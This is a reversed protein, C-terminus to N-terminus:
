RSMWPQGGARAPVMVPVMTERVPAEGEDGGAGHGDGLVVAFLHQGEGGDGLRPSITAQAPMPAWSVMQAPTRSMIKWATLLDMSNWATPETSVAQAGPINLIHVAQQQAHGLKGIDDTDADRAHIQRGNPISIEM